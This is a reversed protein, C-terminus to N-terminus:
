PRRAIIIFLSGLSLRSFFAPLIPDFYEVMEVVFGIKELLRRIDVLCYVNKSVSLYQYYNKGFIQSVNRILQQALRILSLRNPVSVILIGDPRIVRFLEGIAKEPNEVYEIVSSCLIKDFSCSEFDLIEITGVLKYTIRGSECLDISEKKANEIMRPSGDVAFVHAGLLGILRSLRGSGCGADLWLDDPQAFKKLLSEFFTIRRRFGGSEYCASWNSALSEHFRAGEALIKIKEDM